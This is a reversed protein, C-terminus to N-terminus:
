HAPFPAFCFSRLYTMHSPLLRAANDVKTRIFGLFRTLDPEGM